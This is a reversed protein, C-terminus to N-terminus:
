EVWLFTFLGEDVRMDVLNREGCKLWYGLQKSSMKVQIFSVCKLYFITLGSNIKRDGETCFLCLFFVVQEEERCERDKGLVWWEDLQELCSKTMTEMRFYIQGQGSELM